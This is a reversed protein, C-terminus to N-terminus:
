YLDIKPELLHFQATRESRFHAINSWIYRKSVLLSIETADCTMRISLVPRNPNSRSVPLIGPHSQGNGAKEILKKPMKQFRFDCQKRRGYRQFRFNGPIKSLLNMILVDIDRQDCFIM